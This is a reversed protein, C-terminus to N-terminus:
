SGGWSRRIRERESDSLDKPAPQHNAVATKVFATREDEWRKGNVYSSAHPVFEGGNKTWDVSKCQWALSALVVAIAPQHKQWHRWAAAKKVRRHKPYAHWFVRFDEQLQSQRSQAASPIAREPYSIVPLSGSLDPSSIKTDREGHYVLPSSIPLFEGNTTPPPTTLSGRKLKETTVWRAGCECSRRRLVSAGDYCRTEFM